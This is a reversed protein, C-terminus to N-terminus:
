QLKPTSKYNIKSSKRQQINQEDKLMFLRVTTGSFSFHYLIQDMLTFNNNTVINRGICACFQAPELPNLAKEVMM